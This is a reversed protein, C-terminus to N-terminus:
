WAPHASTPGARTRRMADLTWAGGGAAALFLFIFCYLVATDGRNLLPFLFNAPSAHAAFYAVAMEGSLVFATPRVFLGVVVLAGGVLELLGALGIMSMLSVHGSGAAAPFGLLKASGHLLFLYGTVIRLAALARPAWLEPSFNRNPVPEEALILSAPNEATREGM